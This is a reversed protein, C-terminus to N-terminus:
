FTQPPFPLELTEGAEINDWQEFLERMKARIATLQEDTITPLNEPLNPGFFNATYEKFQAATWPTDGAREADFFGVILESPDANAPIPGKPWGEGFDTFEWGSALLGYFGLTHGLISEVAYHTLDHRAFFGANARTTRQWTITGDPRTCSLSTSGGEIKKFRLLLTPLPNSM